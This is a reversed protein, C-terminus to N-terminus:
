DMAVDKLVSIFSIMIDKMLHYTLVLLEMMKGIELGGFIMPKLTIIIAMLLFPVVLDSIPVLNSNSTLKLHTISNLLSNGALIKLQVKAFLKIILHSNHSHEIVIDLHNAHMTFQEESIILLIM